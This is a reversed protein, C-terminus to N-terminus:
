GGPKKELFCGLAGSLFRLGWTWALFLPTRLPERPPGGRRVLPFARRAPKQLLPGAPESFWSSPATLIAPAAPAPPTRRHLASISNPICIQREDRGRARHGSARAPGRRHGHAQVAAPQRPAVVIVARLGRATLNSRSRHPLVKGRGLSWPSRGAPPNAPCSTRANPGPSVRLAVNSTRPVAASWLCPWGRRRPWAPQAPRTAASPMAPRTSCTWSRLTRPGPSRGARRCLNPPEPAPFVPGM